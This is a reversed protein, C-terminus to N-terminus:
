IFMDDHDLNVKNILEICLSRILKFNFHIFGNDSVVLVVSRFILLFSLTSIPLRAILYKETEAGLSRSFVKPQVQLQLFEKFYNTSITQM